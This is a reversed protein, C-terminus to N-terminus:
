EPPLPVVTPTNNTKSTLNNQMMELKKYAPNNNYSNEGSIQDYQATSKPFLMDGLLPIRKTLPAAATAMAASGIARVPREFAQRVAPTPGTKVMEPTFAKFPRWGKVGSAGEKFAQNTRTLQNRDDAMLTRWSVNSENPVRTNRGKNWWGVLNNFVGGDAAKTM